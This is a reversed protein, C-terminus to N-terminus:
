FYVGWGMGVFAHAECPVCALWTACATHAVHSVCGESPERGDVEGMVTAWNAATRENGRMGEWTVVGQSVGWWM